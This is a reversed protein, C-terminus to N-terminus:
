YEKSLGYGIEVTGKRPAGKFCLDGIVANNEKLMMKWATNWLYADPNSRCGALMEGYAKREEPDMTTELKNELEELSMPELLMRKTRLRIKNKM